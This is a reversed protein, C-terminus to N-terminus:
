PSLMVLRGMLIGRLVTWGLLSGTLIGRALTTSGLRASFSTLLLLLSYYKKAVYDFLLLLLTILFHQTLKVDKM